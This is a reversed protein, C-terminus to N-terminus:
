YDMNSENSNRMENLERLKIARGDARFKYGCANMSALDASKPICRRHETQMVGLGAPNFIEIKM